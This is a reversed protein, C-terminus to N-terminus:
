VEPQLASDTLVHWVGAATGCRGWMAYLLIEGRSSHGHKRLLCLEAKAKPAKSHKTLSSQLNSEGDGGVCM